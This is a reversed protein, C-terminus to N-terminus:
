TVKRYVTYGLVFLAIAIILAIWFLIKALDWALGAIAGFGLIGLVLAVVAFVAAWKLM